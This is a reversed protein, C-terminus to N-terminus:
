AFWGVLHNVYQPGSDVPAAKFAHSIRGDNRIPSVVPPIALGVRGGKRSSTPYSQTM